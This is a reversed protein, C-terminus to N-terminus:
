SGRWKENSKLIAELLIPNYGVQKAAYVIANIDKPLCKGGFGRSEPFVATHMIDVRPDAGWAQRVKEFNAGFKQCIDYFENAFIVKLGFYTNEMYKVIEAETSTLFFWEKEPGLIPILLEYVYKTDEEDGGLVIFPCAKMDKHFEYSSWYRGEGMYEPSFVIRKKYKRKLRETTGPEITSKILIVNSPDIEAVVKEVISTDCQGNEKMPTPVSIAVLDYKGKLNDARLQEPVENSYPDYIRVQYHSSFLKFLGHGVYGYGAILIKKM